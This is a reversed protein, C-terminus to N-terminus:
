GEKLLNEWCRRSFVHPPSDPCKSRRFFYGRTAQPNKELVRKAFIRVVPFVEIGRAVVFNAIGITEGQEDVIGKNNFPLWECCADIGGNANRLVELAMM